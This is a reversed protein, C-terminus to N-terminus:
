SALFLPFGTKYFLKNCTPTTEGEPNIAKVVECAGAEGAKEMMEILTSKRREHKDTQRDADKEGDNKKGHSNLELYFLCSIRTGPETAEGKELLRNGGLDPKQKIKNIVGANLRNIM